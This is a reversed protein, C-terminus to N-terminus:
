LGCWNDNQVGWNGNDDIYYITTNNTCCPYGLSVSWCSANNRANNNNNNNNSNNNSNNNDHNTNRNIGPTELRIHDYMIGDFQYNNNYGGIKRANLTIKNEGIKFDNANLPFELERYFGRIGDRHVCADDKFNSVEASNKGGNLSISLATSSNAAISVRLISTGTTKQDLNFYINWPISQYKGGKGPVSVHCYNWDKFYDSKGIYYQIGNPFEQPFKYPLGWQNFHDGHKYEMATRDPIGIEWAIPGVRNEMFVIEGLDANQGAVVTVM